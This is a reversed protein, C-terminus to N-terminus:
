APLNGVQTLARIYKVCGAGFDAIPQQSNSFSAFVADLINM